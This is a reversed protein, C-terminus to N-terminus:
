IKVRCYLWWPCPDKTWPAQVGLFFVRMLRWQKGKPLWIWAKRDSALFFDTLFVSFFRSAFAPKNKIYGVNGFLFILIDWAACGWDTMWRKGEWLVASTLASCIRSCMRVQYMLSYTSGFAYFGRARRPWCGLLSSHHRRAFVDSLNFYRVKLLLSSPSNKVLRAHGSM